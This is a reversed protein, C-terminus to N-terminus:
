EDRNMTVLFGVCEDNKCYKMSVGRSSVENESWKELVKSKMLELLQKM